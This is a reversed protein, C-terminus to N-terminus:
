KQQMKTFFKSVEKRKTHKWFIQSMVLFKNIKM